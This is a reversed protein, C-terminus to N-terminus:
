SPAIALHPLGFLMFGLLVPLIGCGIAILIAKGTSLEMAQKLISVSIVLYWLGIGQHVWILPSPKLAEPAVVNLILRLSELVIAAGYLAILTQLWRRRKRVSGLFLYVLLGLFYVRVVSFLFNQLSERYLADNISLLFLLLLSTLIAWDRSHPMDQPGCRFRVLHLLSQALVLANNM